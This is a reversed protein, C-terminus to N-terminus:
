LRKLLRLVTEKIADRKRWCLFLLVLIGIVVAVRFGFSLASYGGIATGIATRGTVFWEPKRSMAAFMEEYVAEKHEQTQATQESVSSPVQSKGEAVSPPAAVAEANLLAATAAPVKVKSWVGSMGKSHYLSLAESISIGFSMEVHPRDKFSLWSGGWSLGVAKAWKGILSWNFLKENWSVRGNIVPALDVALGYNHWSKGGRANTVKAGPKTRGKAFLADQEAFTRLGQVIQLTYGERKALALIGRVRRALEPHLKALAAENIKDTM